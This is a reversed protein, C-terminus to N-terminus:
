AEPTYVELADMFGTVSIADGVRRRRVTLIKYDASAYEYDASLNEVEEYKIGV